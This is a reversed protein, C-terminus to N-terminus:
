IVKSLLSAGRSGLSIEKGLGLYTERGPKTIM